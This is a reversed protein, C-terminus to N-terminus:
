LFFGDDNGIPRNRELKLDRLMSSKINLGVSYSRRLGFPIIRANLEWCNLDVRITVTTPTLEKTTFDYGSNIGVRVKDFLTFDGTAQISQTYALTDMLVLPLDEGPSDVFRNRRVNLTYQFSVNWPVKFGSLFSDSDGSVEEEAEESDIVEPAEQRQFATSGLGRVNVAVNGSQFQALGNNSGVLFQGTRVVRESENVAYAYPDFVGSFRLDAYKGISNFGSVSINSLKNSDSVFNYNGSLTLNELFAVKKFKSTTDRRSLFKGEVNNVLSFSISQSNSSPPGGFVTGQYPNYSTLVGEAGYFGYVNPDFDPRYNYSVTPTLTHRIAKLNKGKFSYMGYLKTTVSTSFSWDNNRDFGQITDTEFQDTEPNFIRGFRQFYWRENYNLSPNISLAKVKFSTSLSTTHRIGNRFKKRLQDWNNLALENETASLTNQFASSWVWGIKEYFRDKPGDNFLDKLPFTRAKNVNLTPLTFNYVGTQSNQDHGANANFSWPSDYFSRSYRINSRFTNTLFDNQSANLNNAFNQTSGANVDASFNSYPHAKRDQSHRWNIFFTRAESFNNLDRDGRKQINYEVGLNGDYRYLKKYRTINELGFSGRSYIDGLIKTDVNDSIPLYFGLDNLFYGLENANGYSPMILGAQKKEANPFFGFPFALPTPIKGITLYGPGTVIQEDKIVKLRGIKFRTKANPDECPCYEGHRVYIVRNNDTTKVRDGTLTGEIVATQVQRVYAKKTKFNYDMAFADFKSDAQEFVPKGIWMGATDQVGEAHVTYNSFDYVIREAQLKIDQYTIVADGFLYVKRKVVDNIITDRASYKVPGDLFSKSQNKPVSDVVASDVALTDTLGVALSDTQANVESFAIIFLGVLIFVLKARLIFSPINRIKNITPKEVVM